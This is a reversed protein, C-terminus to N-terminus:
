FCLPHCYEQNDMRYCLKSNEKLEWIYANATGELNAFPLEGEFIFDKYTQSGILFKNTKIERITGKENYPHTFESYMFDFNRTKTLQISELNVKRSLGEGQYHRDVATIFLHAVHNKEFIKNKFFSHTLNELLAFVFKFTPDMEMTLSLPNAIDEVITCAVLKNGVTAGISLGDRIAKEVVQTALPIFDKHPIKLYNTMPEHNCFTRTILKIAQDIHQSQLVDYQCLDDLNLLRAKAALPNVFQLNSEKM